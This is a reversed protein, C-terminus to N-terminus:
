HKNVKGNVFLLFQSQHWLKLIFLTSNRQSISTTLMGLFIYCPSQEDWRGAFFSFLIGNIIPISLLSSTYVFSRKESAKSSYDQFTQNVYTMKGKITKHVTNRRPFLDRGFKPFILLIFIFPQLKNCLAPKNRLLVPM